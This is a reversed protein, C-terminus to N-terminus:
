AQRQQLLHVAESITEVLKSAVAQAAVFIAQRVAYRDSRGHGIICIGNVGLLPAGGYERYDLRARFRKFASRLFALPVKMLPHATLEERLLRLLMEAVGEGAKLLVNGVFGDCVVVEVVGEFLHKGEVNGYFEDKLHHRLLAHAEKTLANGKTPEEGINLLGVKPEAIGLVQAAYIQGMLAFDLLHRPACDVTAGSDILVCRGRYTPLVTAIAPRDIHPISGWLLKSIAAAAGTNGVTVLADVEGKQVMEAAVVLSSDRKRRVAMVPSDEMTVVQSAPQIRLNAPRGRRPLFPEIQAPDGVLVLEFPVQAAVELSGLVIEKPAYDGGMADVAIRMFFRSRAAEGGGM